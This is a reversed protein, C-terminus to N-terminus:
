LQDVESLVGDLEAAAERLTQVDLPEANAGAKIIHLATEVKEYLSADADKVADEFADWIEELEEANEKVAEANSAELNKNLNAIVAKMENSSSSISVQAITEEAKEIADNPSAEEKSGCAGLSITLVMSMPLIYKKIQMNLSRRNNRKSQDPHDKQKNWIIRLPALIVLMKESIPSKWTPYITFFDSSSIPAQTASLLGALQLGHIGM